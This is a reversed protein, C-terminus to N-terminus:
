GGGVLKLFGACCSVLLLGGLCTVITINPSFDAEATRSSLPVETEDEPVWSLGGPLLEPEHTAPNEIKDAESSVVFLM